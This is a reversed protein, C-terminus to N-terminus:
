VSGIIRVEGIDRESGALAEVRHTCRIASLELGERDLDVKLQVSRSLCKPELRTTASPSRDRLFNESPSKQEQSFSQALTGLGWISEVSPFTTM